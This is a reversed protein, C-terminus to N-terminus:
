NALEQLQGVQTPKSFDTGPPPTEFSKQKAAYYEAGLMAGLIMSGGVVLRWTLFEGGLMVAFLASFVPETTMVVATRVASIQAQAWTQVLLALISAFVTMYIISAWAGMSTPVQLGDYGAVSLCLIGVVMMQITALSAANEKTAWRGMLVIHLSYGLAGLLTLTEGYGFSLGRLSLVALGLFAIAGAVVSIKGPRIRFVVWLILPTLVVYMGTIFGNVSAPTWALGETQFIQATAFIVGLIFGKQWTRKGAARVAPFFVVVMVIGALAFRIGLFDVSSIEQLIMKTM